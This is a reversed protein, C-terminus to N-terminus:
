QEPALSGGRGELFRDILPIGKLGRGSLVDPIIGKGGRGELLWELSPPTVQAAPAAAPKAPTLKTLEQDIYGTLERLAKQGDEGAAHFVPNAELRERAIRLSSAKAEPTSTKDEVLRRIYARTGGAESELYATRNHKLAYRSDYAEFRRALMDIEVEMRRTQNLFETDGLEKRRLQANVPELWQMMRQRAIDWRRYAGDVEVRENDRVVNNEQLTLTRRRMDTEEAERQARLLANQLMPYEALAREFAEKAAPTTAPIGLYLNKLIPFKTFLQDKAQVLGWNQADQLSVPIGKEALRYLSAKVEATAGSPGLADIVAKSQERQVKLRQDQEFIHGVMSRVMQPDRLGMEPDLGYGSAMKQLYTRSKADRVLELAAGAGLTPESLLQTITQEAETDAPNEAYRQVAESMIQRLPQIRSEQADKRAREFLSLMPSLTGPAAGTMLANIEMPSRGALWDSMTPGVPKLYHQARVGLPPRVTRGGIVGAGAVPEGAIEPARSIRGAGPVPEGAIERDTEPVFQGAPEPPIRFQAMTQPVMQGLLQQQRGAGYIQGFASLAQGPQLRTKGYQVGPM